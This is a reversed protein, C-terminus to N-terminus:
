QGSLHLIVTLERLLTQSLLRAVNGKTDGGHRGESLTLTYYRLALLAVRSAEKNVLRMTTLQSSSTVWVSTLCAHFRSGCDSWTWSLLPNIFEQDQAPLQSHSTRGLQSNAGVDVLRCTSSLLAGVFCIQPFLPATSSYGSFFTVNRPGM